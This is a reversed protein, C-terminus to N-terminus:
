ENWLSKKIQCFLFSNLVASPVATRIKRYSIRVKFTGFFRRGDWYAILAVLYVPINASICVKFKSILGTEAMEFGSFNESLVLSNSFWWVSISSAFRRWNSLLKFFVATSEAIVSDDRLSVRKWLSASRRFRWVSYSVWLRPKAIPWM